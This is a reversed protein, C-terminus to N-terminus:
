RCYATKTKGSICHCDDSATEDWRFIRASIPESTKRAYSDRGIEIIGHSKREGRIKVYEQHKILVEMIQKGVRMTPNLSTMPDQFIMSIEKGRIKEMEKETKSVIDTGEFLIQGGKIKSPPMPILKMLTQATVSKGSGSEGVIALTEGKYLNFNVGRVAQVDGGYTQFSVHLDKVELIKEM